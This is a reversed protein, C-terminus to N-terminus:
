SKIKLHQSNARKLAPGFALVEWTKDTGETEYIPQMEHFDQRTMRTIFRYKPNDSGDEAGLVEEGLPNDGLVNSSVIEERNNESTGDLTYERQSTAGEYDYNIRLTLKTPQTMYLESFFEEFNKRVVRNGFNQYAFKAVAKMSKSNDNTGTFLKYSENSSGSHGYLDGGVEYFFSVPLVQPPQWFANELDYIFVKGDTPAAIYVKNKNYFVHGGTFTGADFDPKIPDSLPKSQPTDINEVRGLQDFSPESSVFLVVNKASGILNHELAGQGPGTKLKKVIISEALTTSIAIEEFSIRFWNNKATTVYLFEEQTVAGLGYGDLTLQGGEGPVRPSSFTYDTYDDNASIYLIQSTNSGVVVHNNIVTLFDNDFGDAPNNDNERIAQHAVSNAAEGVPSPTVGTLTTTSEGGTYTYETGNIVVKRTGTTYFRENAWTTSGNKTITTATASAITTIAGSWDYMKDAGNVGLLVDIGESNDWWPTFVWKASTYGNALRRWTVTGDSAVYRYELEDGYSRVHRQTGSSTNWTFAGEIGNNETSASGDLEYGNRASVKEDDNILVNQSGSVLFRPDTNTKDAKTVYGKYNSTIAWQKSM